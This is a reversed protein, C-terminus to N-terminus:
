AIDATWALDDEPEDLLSHLPSPPAPAMAAELAALRAEHDGLEVLRAAALSGAILARVRAISNELGLADLMAIELLRRSDEITALGGFAFAGSLAKERRRRLGGLRRAETADEEREPDHWFCYAADRMPAARCPAGDSALAQCRRPLLSLEAM